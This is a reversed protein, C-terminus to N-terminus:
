FLMFFNGQSTSIAFYQIIVVGESGDGGNGTTDGSDGGGGGGGGYL